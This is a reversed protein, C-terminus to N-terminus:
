RCRQAHLLIEGGENGVSTPNVQVLSMTGISRERMGVRTLNVDDFVVLGM